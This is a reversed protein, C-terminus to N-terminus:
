ARGDKFAEELASVLLISLAQDWGQREKVERLLELNKLRRQRITRVGEARANPAPKLSALRSELYIINSTNM